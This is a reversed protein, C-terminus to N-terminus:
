QWQKPVELFVAFTSLEKGNSDKGIVSSFNWVQEDKPLGCLNNKALDHRARGGTPRLEKEPKDVEAAVGISFEFELSNSPESNCKLQVFGHGKSAQFSKMGKGERQQPQQARPPHPQLMMVFQLGNVVFQKSVVTRVSSNLKACEVLWYFRTAGHVPVEVITQAQHRGSTDPRALEHACQEFRLSRGIGSPSLKDERGIGQLAEHPSHAAFGVTSFTAAPMMAPMIVGSGQDLPVMVPVYVISMDADPTLVPAMDVVRSAITEHWDGTEQASAEFRDLTQWRHLEGPAPCFQKELPEAGWQHEMEVAQEFPDFTSLRNL